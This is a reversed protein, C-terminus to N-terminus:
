NFYPIHLNALSEGCDSMQSSLFFDRITQQVFVEELLSQNRFNLANYGMPNYSFLCNFNVFAKKKKNFIHKTASVQYIQSAVKLM